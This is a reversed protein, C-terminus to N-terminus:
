RPVPATAERFIETAEPFRGALMLVNGLNHRARHYGPDVALSERFCSEAEELDGTDQLALGLNNHTAPHQPALAVANRASALADELRRARRFIEAAHTQYEANDAACQIAQEMRQAALQADARHHAIMALLYWAKAERPHTRTLQQCLREARAFDGLQCAADAEDLLPLPQPM